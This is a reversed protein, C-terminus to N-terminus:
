SWKIERGDQYVMKHNNSVRMWLAEDVYNHAPLGAMEGLVKSNKTSMIGFYLGVVVFEFEENAAVDMKFRQDHIIM